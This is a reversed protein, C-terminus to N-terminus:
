MKKVAKIGMLGLSETLVTQTARILDLRITENPDGLVRSTDYFKHFASALEYTYHALRYVQHSSAIEEIIVPFQMLQKILTKEYESYEYSGKNNRTKTKQKKAKDMVSNIRASAYQIYFIPNKNNKAKAIDLDIDMHTNLDRSIFFYRAADLGIEDVVETLTIFTGKRKSMRVEVGDRIVRVLQMILVSLDGPHGMLASGAQIRGVYGHHDAGLIMIIKKFKRMQFREYLYALDGMFYTPQGESTQVVRDKDDGFNTTKLWEAGENEYIAHQKILYQWTKKILGSTHLSKESFFTDFNIGCKKIDKKILDKLIMQSALEGVKMYEKELFRLGKKKKIQHALEDIYPGGYIDEGEKEPYPLKCSKKIAKALVEIQHGADNVYYERTVDYGVKKLVHALTDGSFGGRGNGLTLPGTPNASIFEVQVKQKKGLTSSGYHDKKKIVDAVTQAFLIDGLFLNVFGGAAVECKTFIRRTYLETALEGAIDRPNKGLKKALAFAINTSFDGHSTNSPVTLDVSIGKLKYLKIIVDSIVKEINKQM